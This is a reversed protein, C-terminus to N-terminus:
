LPPWGRRPRASQGHTVDAHTFFLAGPLPAGQSDEVSGYINGTRQQAMLSFPVLVCCLLVLFRKM